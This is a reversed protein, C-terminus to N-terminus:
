WAFIEEDIVPIGFSIGEVVCGKDWEAWVCLEAPLPSKKKKPSNGGSQEVPKLLNM